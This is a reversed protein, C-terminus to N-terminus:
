SGIIFMLIRGRVAHGTAPIPLGDGRAGEVVDITLIWLNQDNTAVAITPHLGRKLAPLPDLKSIKSVM